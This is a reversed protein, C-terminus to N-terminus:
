CIFARIPWLSGASLLFSFILNKNLLHRGVFRSGGDALEVIYMICRAVRDGAVGIVRKCSVHQPHDPHAFGVLDGSKYTPTFGFRKWWVKTSRLWIDSQDAAMTPLMSPGRLCVLTYPSTEEWLFFGTILLAFPLRQAIAIAQEKTYWWASWGFSSGRFWAQVRAQFPASTSATAAAAESTSVTAATSSSTGSSSSTSAKNGLKGLTKASTQKKEELKAKREQLRREKRFLVKGNSDGGAGGQSKTTINAFRTTNGGSSIKLFPSNGSRAYLHVFPANSKKELASRTQFLIVRFM